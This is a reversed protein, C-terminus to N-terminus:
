GVMRRNSLEVLEVMGGKLSEVIQRNRLEGIGGTEGDWWEVIQGNSTEIIRCNSLEM